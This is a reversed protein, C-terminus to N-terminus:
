MGPLLFLVTPSLQSSSCTTGHSVVWSLGPSPAAFSGQLCEAYDQHESQCGRWAWHKEMGVGVAGELSALMVGTSM